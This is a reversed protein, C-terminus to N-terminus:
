SSEFWIIYICQFLNSLLNKTMLMKSWWKNEERFKHSPFSQREWNSRQGTKHLQTPMHSSATFILPFQGNSSSTTERKCTGPYRRYSVRLCIALDLKLADPNPEHGARSISQDHNTLVFAQLPKCIYPMTHSPLGHCKMFYLIHLTIIYYIDYIYHARRSLCVM